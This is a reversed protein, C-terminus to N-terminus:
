LVRRQFERFGIQLSQPSDAPLDDPYIQCLRQVAPLCDSEFRLKRYETSEDVDDGKLYYIWTEIRRKPVVVAIREDRGGPDMNRDALRDETQRIRHGVTFIDADIVTILCVDQYNRKRQARVEAPSQALVYADGAGSGPPCIKERIAHGPFGRGKLFRRVFVAHQLDESLITARTRIRSMFGVGPWWNPSPCDEM